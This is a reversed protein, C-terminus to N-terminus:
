QAPTNIEEIADAYGDDYGYTYYDDAAQEMGDFHGDLYGQEYAIDRADEAGSDYGKEYRLFFYSEADFYCVECLSAHCCPCLGYIVDYEDCSSCTGRYEREKSCGSLLVLICIICLAYRKM